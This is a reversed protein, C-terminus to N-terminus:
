YSMGWGSFLGPFPLEEAILSNYKLTQLIQSVGLHPKGDREGQIFSVGPTRQQRRFCTIGFSGFYGHATWGKLAHDGHFPMVVYHNTFFLKTSKIRRRSFPHEYMSFLYMQHWSAAGTARVAFRMKQLHWFEHGGGKSLHHGPLSFARQQDAAKLM